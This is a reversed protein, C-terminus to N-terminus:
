DSDKNTRLVDAWKDIERKLYSALFDPGTSRPAIV